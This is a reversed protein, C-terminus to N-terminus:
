DIFSRGDMQDRIRIPISLDLHTAISPLIDVIGPDTYFQENLRSSNTAIWITRERESQGGHNRGTASDRGHDTTVVILWDERHDRTREEIASWIVGVREDMLEVAATQEPSDGFKHGVDDSYQLYVWSLDPGHEKIYSSAQRVVEADIERIYHSFADHRFRVTDKEFGDAFHDIKRGGAEARGDGVLKTRNDEWTSFIATQLSPEHTKAIRFVDWVDYNPNAISNSRVNHKNAWTGTLLSQYGVASVTPSESVGGVEGGVYARTYGNAGAIADIAPTHTAEVVDAPIGDIVIFVAKPTVEATCSQLLLIAVAALCARASCTNGIMDVTDPFDVLRSALDHVVSPKIHAFAQVERTDM